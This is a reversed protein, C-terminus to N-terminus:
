NGAIGTLYGADRLAHLCSRADPYLDAISITDAEGRATRERRAAELDFGKKFRDFVRRHHQGGAIIEDLAKLFEAPPVGLYTAWGNWLRQEDILTEGVDFFVASIFM